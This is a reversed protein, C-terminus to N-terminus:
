PDTGAYYATNLEWTSRCISFGNFIMLIQIRSILLFDANKILAMCMQYCVVICYSLYICNYCSTCFRVIPLKQQFDNKHWLNYMLWKWVWLRHGSCSVVGAGGVALIDKVVFVLIGRHFLSAPICDCFSWDQNKKRGEVERM